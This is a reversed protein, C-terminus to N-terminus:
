SLVIVLRRSARKRIFAITFPSSSHGDGIVRNLLQTLQQADVAVLWHFISMYQRRLEIARDRKKIVLTVLHQPPFPQTHTSDILNGLGSVIEGRFQETLRQEQYSTIVPLNPRQDIYTSMAAHQNGITRPVRPIEHAGIMRPRIVPSTLQQASRADLLRIM